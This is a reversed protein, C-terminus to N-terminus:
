SGNDITIVCSGTCIGHCSIGGSITSFNCTGSMGGLPGGVCSCSATAARARESPNPVGPQLRIETCPSDSDLIGKTCTIETGPRIDLKSAECSGIALGTLGLAINASNQDILSTIFDPGPILSDDLCDGGKKAAKAELSGWTRSFAAQCKAVAANYKSTDGNLALNKQATQQCQAYVGAAANKGAQCTQEPAPAAASSLSASLTAAVFLASAIM